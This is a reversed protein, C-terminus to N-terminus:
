RFFQYEITETELSNLQPNRGASTTGMEAQEWLEIHCVTFPVVEASSISVAWNEIFCQM